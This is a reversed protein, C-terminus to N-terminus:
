RRSVRDCDAAVRDARDATIRDVSGGCFVLDPGGDRSTLTDPGPGADFSDLGKGGTIRDRGSGGDLGDLGAGASIRDRGDGGTLENARKSGNLVDAFETGLLDEVDARVNDGEGAFGDNPRGDLSVKVGFDRDSYDGLDVGPGGILVDAGTTEFGAELIDDGAGGVAQDSGSGGEISVDDGAGGRVVDDGEDGRLLFDGGGAGDIVDDGGEGRLENPVSNGTLRDNGPGGTLGEVDGGVADGECAAGPCGLGDDALGDLDATVNGAHQFYSVEDFGPGGGISDAGDPAFRVGGEYSDNGAGGFVVDNGAGGRLDDRGGGGNITDGSDSGDLIDALAGGTLADAGVGETNFGFHGFLENEINPGGTIVDNGAEGHVVLDADFPEGLPRLSSDGTLTDSMDDLELYVREAGATPCSATNPGGVNVCPLTPTIAASNAIVIDTLTQSVVISNTEGPAARFDIEGGANNLTAAGASPVASALLIAPALAPVIRRGRRM